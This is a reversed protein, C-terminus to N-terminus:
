QAQEGTREEGAASCRDRGASCCRLLCQWERAHFAGDDAGHRWQRQRHRGAAVVVVPAEAQLGRLVGAAAAGIEGPDGGTHVQLPTAAGDETGRGAVLAGFTVRAYAVVMEHELSTAPEIEDGAA